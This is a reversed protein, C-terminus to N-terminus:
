PIRRGIVVAAKDVSVGGTFGVAVVMNQSVAVGEFSYGAPIETFQHWTNGNYHALVGGWATVFIDNEATGRVETFNVNPLGPIEKWGAGAHRWLGAGSAYVAFRSSIWIGRLRVTPPWSLTDQATSPSLSLLKTEGPSSAVAMITTRRTSPDIYGNVDRLDATTGSTLKQWSSAFFSILTGNRGVAYLDRSSAGWIKLIAGSVMGNMACSWSFQKGDWREMDAGGSMSFDDPSFAVIAYLPYPWTSGSGCLPVPVRLLQWTRTDWKTLNYANPDWNGLSDRKYIEGVAYALTDNIIAVDYLSSSNGDGLADTQWTFDHSTTDMTRAQVSAHQGFMGTVTVDYSYTHSPLLGEDAILTDTARVTSSLIPKGDRTLIVQHYPIGDAFLVHLWVETCSADEVALLPSASGPEPPQEKCSFSFLALLCGLVLRIM